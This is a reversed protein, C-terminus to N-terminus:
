SRKLCLGGMGRFMGGTAPLMKHLRCRSFRISSGMRRNSALGATSAVFSERFIMLVYLLTARVSTAKSYRHYSAHHRLRSDARAPRWAVSIMRWGALLLSYTFKSGSIKCSIRSALHRDRM